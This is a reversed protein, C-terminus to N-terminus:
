PNKYREIIGNYVGNAKIRKVSANFRKLVDAKTGKKVGIFIDGLLLSHPLMEMQIDMDLTKVVSPISLENDIVADLRGVDLLTYLQKTNGVISHFLKHDKAKDFELGYSWGLKVGIRKGKLDNISAFPFSEGKRVFLSSVEVYFPDSFDLLEQRENNKLIGVVIGEGKDAVHMARKFPYVSTDYAVGMDDFAASVLAVFLWKPQGNEAYCFPSFHDYFILTETANKAVSLRSFSAMVLTLLLVSVLSFRRSSTFLNLTMRNLVSLTVTPM